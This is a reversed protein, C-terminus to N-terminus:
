FSINLILMPESDLYVVINTDILKRPEYKDHIFIEVVSRFLHEEPRRDDWDVAGLLIAIKGPENLLPGDFCHAATLIFKRNIVSGGCQHKYGIVDDITGTFNGISVSWPYQLSYTYQIKPWYGENHHSWLM